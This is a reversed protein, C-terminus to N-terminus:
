ESYAILQCYRESIAKHWFPTADANPTHQPLFTNSLIDLATSETAHMHCIKLINRCVHQQLYIILAPATFEIGVEFTTHLSQFDDKTCPIVSELIYTPMNYAALHHYVNTCSVKQTM